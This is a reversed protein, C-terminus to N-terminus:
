DNQHLRPIYDILTSLKLESPNNIKCVKLGAEVAAKIGNENDEVVIIESKAFKMLSTMKIYIEPDPKSKNVDENTLIFDFFRDINAYKLFLDTTKKISNTALGLKIDLIKLRSLLLLHDLSPKCFQAALRMTRDQKIESIIELLYNPLHVESQLIHLKKSTPLGDFDQLHRELPITYGFYGLAINLATYHWEKADILVGDMDFIVGKIM